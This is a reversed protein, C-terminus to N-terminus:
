LIIFYIQNLILFTKQLLFLLTVFFLPFHYFQICIIFCFNQFLKVTFIDYFNNINKNLKFRQIKSKFINLFLTSICIVCNIKLNYVSDRSLLHCSRPSMTSDDRQFVIIRLSNLM